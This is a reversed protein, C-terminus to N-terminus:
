DVNLRQLELGNFISSPEVEEVVIGNNVTMEPQKQVSEWTSLEYTGETEKIEYTQMAEYYGNEMYSVEVSFGEKTDDDYVFKHAGRMMEFQYGDSVEWCEGVYNDEIAEDGVYLQEGILTYPEGTSSVITPMSSGRIIVRVRRGDIGEGVVWGKENVHTNGVENEEIASLSNGALTQSVYQYVKTLTNPNSLMDTYTDRAGYNDNNYAYLPYVPNGVENCQIQGLIGGVGVWVKAGNGDVLESGIIGPVVVILNRSAAVADIEAAEEIAWAPQLVSLLVAITMLLSILKKM